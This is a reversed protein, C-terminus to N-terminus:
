FLTAKFANRSTNRHNNSSV